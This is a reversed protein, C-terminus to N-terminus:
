GGGVMQAVELTDGARLVTRGFRERRLPTGNHEVVTREPALKQQKLFDLVTAGTKVERRKGNATVIM